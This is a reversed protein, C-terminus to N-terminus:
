GECEVADATPAPGGLFLYNLLYVADSLDVAEDGNVDAAAACAMSGGQFLEGLIAIADSVDLAKDGTVDGRQAQGEELTYEFRATTQCTYNFTQGQVTGEGELFM